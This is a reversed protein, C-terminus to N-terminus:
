QHPYGSSKPTRKTANNNLDAELMELGEDESDSTEDDLADPEPAIYVYSRHSM